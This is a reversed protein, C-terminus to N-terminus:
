SGACQRLDVRYSTNRLAVEPIDDFTTILATGADVSLNEVNWLQWRFDASDRKSALDTQWERETLDIISASGRHAKVEVRLVEDPRTAEIDYGPNNIPMQKAEYGLRVLQAAAFDRGSQEILNREEATLSIGSSFDSGGSHTGGGVRVVIAQRAGSEVRWEHDDPSKLRLARTQETM